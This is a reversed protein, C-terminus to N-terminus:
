GARGPPPRRCHSPDKGTASRESDKLERYDTRWVLRQLVLRHRALASIVEDDADTKRNLRLLILQRAIKDAETKLSDDMASKLLAFDAPDSLVFERAKQFDLGKFINLIKKEADIRDELDSKLKKLERSRSRIAWLIERMGAFARDHADTAVLLVSRAPPHRKLQRALSLLTAASCAEDAGPSRGAVLPTSDYFAEVVILQDALKKDAGPVLCYINEGTAQIWRSEATLRAHINPRNKGPSRRFDDLLGAMESRPVWFRPFRIPTLEFKDRYLHGATASEEGIYILAAAGFNAAQIWNRGSDMEMVVIAGRLDLGNFSALTGDGVYVM